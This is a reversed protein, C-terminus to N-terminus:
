LTRYEFKIHALKVKEIASKISELESPPIESIRYVAPTGQIQELILRFDSIELLYNFYSEFTHDPLVPGIFDQVSSFFSDGLSSEIYSEARVFVLSIGLLLNELKENQWIKGTPLLLKLALSFKNM